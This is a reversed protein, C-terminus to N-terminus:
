FDLARGNGSHCTVADSRYEPKVDHLEAAFSHVEGMHRQGRDTLGNGRKSTWPAAMAVTVPLVMAAM